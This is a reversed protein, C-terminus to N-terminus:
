KNGCGSMGVEPPLQAWAAANAVAPRAPDRSRMIHGQPGRHTSKDANQYRWDISWRIYDSSNQGGRHFLVFNFLVLDGPSLEIPIAAAEHKAVVDPDLMANATGVDVHKQIGLKHSGPVFAMCGSEVTAEVFPTWCNVINRIDFDDTRTEPPTTDALGSPTLGGDQHWVVDHITAKPFKPRASYNPFIRVAPPTGLIADVVDLLKENGLLEFLKETHLEPRFMKPVLEPRGEALKMMRTEFPEDDAFGPPM